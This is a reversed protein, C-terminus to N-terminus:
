LHALTRRLYDEAREPPAGTIREIHDSVTDFEKNDVARYLSVLIEVLYEPVEEAGERCIAAFEEETVSDFRVSKGTVLSIIDALEPMSLAVPGTLEYVLESHGTNLCAAATARALDDRSVYAVRGTKVPYPLRGMEVLEPMWDAIPDLYLNNRLITWDVGSLRLKSEAYLFFPTVQFRSAHTGATSLSSFVVRRVGADRAAELANFHQQIRPEVPAISPILALIETGQFAERLSRIDEYDARRVVVGRKSMDQAKGPTRVAATVHGATAGRDLLSKVVRRGLHGTAPMVTIKM